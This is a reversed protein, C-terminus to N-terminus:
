AAQRETITSHGLITSIEEAIRGMIHDTLEPITGPTWDPHTGEEVSQLEELTTILEFLDEQRARIGLTKAIRDHFEAARVVWESDKEYAPTEEVFRATVVQLMLAAGVENLRKM